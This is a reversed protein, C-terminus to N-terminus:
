RPPLQPPVILPPPAVTANVIPAEGEATGSEPAPPAPPNRCFDVVRRVAVGGPIMLLEPGGSVAIQSQPRAMADLVADGMGTRAQVRGGDVERTGLSVGAGGASLNFATGGGAREFVIQGNARDCHLAFAAPQDAAGYFAAGEMVRWAMPAGVGQVPESANEEMTEVAAVKVEGSRQTRNGVSVGDCGALLLVLLSFSNRSM